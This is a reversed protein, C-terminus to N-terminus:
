FFTRWIAVIILLLSDCGVLYSLLITQLPCSPGLPPLTVKLGSKRIGKKNMLPSEQGRLTCVDDNVRFQGWSVHVQIEKCGGEHKQHHCQSKFFGLDLIPRTDPRLNSKPGGASQLSNQQCGAASLLPRKSGKKFNSTHKAAMITLLPSGCRVWYTGIKFFHTLHGNIDAVPQCMDCGVLDSLMITQLPCSPGFPMLPGKLGSKWALVCM